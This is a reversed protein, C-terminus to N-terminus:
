TMEAPPASPTPGVRRVLHFLGFSAALGVLAPVFVYALPPPRLSERGAYVYGLAAGIGMASAVTAAALVWAVGTRRWRWAIWILMALAFLLPKLSSGPDKTFIPAAAVCLGLFFCILWEWTFNELRPRM